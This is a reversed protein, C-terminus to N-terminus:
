ESVYISNINDKFVLKYHSRTQLAFWNAIEKGHFATEIIIMKPFWFELNFGHLVQLEAGEVDISLLDFGPLVGQKPLDTDLTVQRCLKRKSADYTFGFPAKYVTDRDVTSNVGAEYLVVEGDYDGVCVNVVHVDPHPLHNTICALAYESVPEYCIGDWGASALGWTNSFGYGDYAGVEVFMGINRQGFYKEYVDNLNPIQCSDSIKYPM